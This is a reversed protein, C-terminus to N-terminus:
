IHIYRDRYTDITINNFIKIHGYVSSWPFATKLVLRGIGQERVELNELV